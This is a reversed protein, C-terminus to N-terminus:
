VQSKNVRKNWAIIDYQIKDANEPSFRVLNRDQESQM